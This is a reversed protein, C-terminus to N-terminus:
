FYRVASQRLSSFLIKDRTRRSTGSMLERTQQASAIDRLRSECYSFMWMYVCSSQCGECIWRPQSFVTNLFIAVVSLCFM